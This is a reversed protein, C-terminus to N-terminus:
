SREFGPVGARRRADRQDPASTAHALRHEQLTEGLVFGRREVRTGAPWGAVFEAEQRLRDRGEAEAPDPVEGAPREGVPIVRQIEQSGGGPGRRQEDDQVLEGLQFGGGGFELADEACEEVACAARRLQAQQEASRCDPGHRSQLFFTRREVPPKAQRQGDM